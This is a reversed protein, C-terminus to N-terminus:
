ELYGVLELKLELTESKYIINKVYGQHLNLNLGFRQVNARNNCTESNEFLLLNRLIEILEKCFINKTGHEM